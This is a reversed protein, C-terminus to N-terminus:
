LNSSFNINILEQESKSIPSAITHEHKQSSNYYNDEQTRQCVNNRSYIIQNPHVLHSAAQNYSNKSWSTGTESSHEHHIASPISSDFLTTTNLALKESFSSEQMAKCLTDARRKILIAFLIVAVLSLASVIIMTVDPESHENKHSAMLENRNNSYVDDYCGIIRKVPRCRVFRCFPAVTVTIETKKPLYVKCSPVKKRHCTVINNEILSENLYVKYQFDTTQYPRKMEWLWSSTCNDLSIELVLRNNTSCEAKSRWCSCYTEKEDWMDSKVQGYHHLIYLMVFCSGYVDLLYVMMIRPFSICIYSGIKWFKRWGCHGGFQYCYAYSSYCLSDKTMDCQDTPKSGIQNTCDCSAAYAGKFVGKRQYCNMDHVSISFDCRNLVIHGAGDLRGMVLYTKDEYFPHYRSAGCQTYMVKVDYLNTNSPSKLIDKVEIMYAADDYGYKKYKTIRIKAVVPSRCYVVQPHRYECKQSCDATPPSWSTPQSTGYGYSIVTSLCLGVLIWM